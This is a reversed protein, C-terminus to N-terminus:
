PQSGAPFNTVLHSFRQRQDLLHRPWRGDIPVFKGSGPGFRGFLDAGTKLCWHIHRDSRFEPRNLEQHSYSDLKIRIQDPGGLYSFHWGGDAIVRGSTHRLGQTDTGLVMLDRYQVMRTGCLRGINCNVFYYYMDQEFMRVGGGQCHERVKEGRPIEDADSVLIVDRPRASGLGRALCRRQFHEIAWPNSVDVGDLDDVIVHTIKDAFAQFRSRHEAYFLLKPRNSFTRTSEVVVFRDVVSDLEHLRLELVDLENFFLFTDYTM